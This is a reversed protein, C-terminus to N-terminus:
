RLGAYVRNPEEPDVVLVGVTRGTPLAMTKWTQGLDSSKYITSRIAAFIQSKNDPNMALATVNSGETNLPLLVQTWTNGRDASRYLGKDTGVMVVSPSSPDSQIANYRTAEGTLKVETWTRGGDESRRFGEERLLVYITGGTDGAVAIRWIRDTLDSVTNWTTGGDISRLLTGSSLGAYMVAPNKPDPALVTVALGATPANYISQWAGGRDETKVIAARDNQAGAALIEDHNVSNIFVDHLAFGPLLQAWSKASDESAYLGANYTAALVNQNAGEEVHLASIQAGSLSKNPTVSNAEQWTDGSDVSAFVGRAGSGQDGYLDGFLFNCAQATFLIPLIAIVVKKM